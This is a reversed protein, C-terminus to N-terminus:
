PGDPSEAALTDRPRQHRIDLPQRALKFSAQEREVGAGAVRGLREICRHIVPGDSDDRAVAEVRELWLEFEVVIM